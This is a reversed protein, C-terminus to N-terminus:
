LKVAVEKTILMSDPTVHCEVAIINVGKQAADRLAASFSPDTKDNPILHKVGEMQIVFLVYAGFEEEVAKILGKLHKTGRETPADPFACVRDNELTVGKVELFCKKGDKEFSFDFRSDGHVTEAHLNELKGLGGSALWEGAAANPLQSDMNIFLDGKEVAILDYKTKRNPNDSVSCWVKAGYPLLERCRGTNKVHVIEEQGNIEIHAIFRNPRSLFVGPVIPTHYKM